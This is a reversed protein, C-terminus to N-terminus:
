RYQSKFEGWAVDANPVVACEVATADQYVYTFVHDLWPVYLTFTGQVNYLGYLEIIEETIEDWTGALLLTGYRDGDDDTVVANGATTLIVNGDTDALSVEYSVDAETMGIRFHVLLEANWELCGGSFVVEEFETAAAPNPLVLVPMLFLSLLLLRRM